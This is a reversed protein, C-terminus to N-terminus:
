TEGKELDPKGLVPWARPPRIPSGKGRGSSVYAPCSLSQTYLSPVSCEGSDHSDEGPGPLGQLKLGALKPKEKM